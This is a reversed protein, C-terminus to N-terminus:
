ILILTLLKLRTWAVESPREGRLASQSVRWTRQLLLGRGVSGDVGVLHTLVRTGTCVTSPQCTGEQGRHLGSLGRFFPGTSAMRVEGVSM